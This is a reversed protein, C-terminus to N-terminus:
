VREVDVWRQGRESAVIADMVAQVRAGDAFSPSCPRGARIADIFEANQDYRFTALPDGQRPDRRSAPHKLFSEPVSVRELGAGGRKGVLLELPRELFYVVSGESGNVECYDQSRGGEGRGSALKTSELVGTAGNEFDAIAAVWDEVDAPKGGRQPVLLKTRGVLRRVPGMLLHAYDIRHSLMDGLEGTAATARNQRWGLYRDGWDQFRQARFHYPTGVDGRAVLHAMYRMAPVFRYTFATMHRVGRKQAAALMGKAEALDMAIPKECLVHKGADIAALAIPAHVHNPTAIVVAQVDDRTVVRRYDTEAVSVGSVRRAEELVRADADCLAAVRTDPCMAFGPLHNALAIGGTGIIAVGITAM